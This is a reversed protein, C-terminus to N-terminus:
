PIRITVEKVVTFDSTFGEPSLWSYTDKQWEFTVAVLRATQYDRYMCVLKSDPVVSRVEAPVKKGESDTIYIITSPM